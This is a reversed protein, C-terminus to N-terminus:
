LSLDRGPLSLWIEKERFHAQGRDWKVARLRCTAIAKLGGGREHVHM